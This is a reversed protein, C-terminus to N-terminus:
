PYAFGALTGDTLRTIKGTNTDVYVLVAQDRSANFVAVLPYENDMSITGVPVMGIENGLGSPEVFASLPYSGISYGELMSVRLTTNLTGEFQGGTGELWLMPGDPGSILARAPGRENGALRAFFVQRTTHINMAHIGDASSWAVWTQGQAMAAFPCGLNLIERSTSTALDLYYLGAREDTLSDGGIGWLNTTYWVGDPRDAADRHIAVPQLFRMDSRDVELVFRSTFSPDSVALYITSHLSNGETSPTRTSYAFVSRGPIGVLGTFVAPAPFEALVSTQGNLDYMLQATGNETSGVYVLGSLAVGDAASGTLHLMTVEVPSVTKWSGVPGADRWHLDLWGGGPRNVIFAAPMATGQAMLNDPTVSCAGVAVPALTPEIVPKTVPSCASIILFIILVSLCIPKM